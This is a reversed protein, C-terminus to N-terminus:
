LSKVLSSLPDPNTMIQGFIVCFSIIVCQIKPYGIKPYTRILGLLGGCWSSAVQSSVPTVLLEVRWGRWCIRFALRHSPAQRGSWFHDTSSHTAVSWGPPSRGMTVFLPHSIHSGIPTQDQHCMKRYDQRNTQCKHWLDHASSPSWVLVMIVCLGCSVLFVHLMIQAALGCNFKGTGLLTWSTNGPVTRAWKWDIAVAGLPLSEAPPYQSSARWLQGKCHRNWWQSKTEQM